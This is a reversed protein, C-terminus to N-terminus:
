TLSPGFAEFDENSPFAEASIEYRVPLDDAPQLLHGCREEVSEWAFVGRFHEGEPREPDAFAILDTRPLLAVVGRTWACYSRQKGTEPNGSVSFSAVFVDTDEKEHIADLLRKQETYIGGVEELRLRRYTEHSPHGAAVEWLTWGSPTRRLPLVSIAGPAQQEAAALALARAVAEEDDSGILILCNRNPVLAVAVGPLDLGDLIGDLLLRSSDYDDRWASVHVGPFPTWWRPAGIAALNALATELAEDFSVGWTELSSLPVSSMHEGRDEVLGMCLRGAFSRYLPSFSELGQLRVQLRMTEFMFSDRLAPRIHPAAEEWTAFPPLEWPMALFRRLVAGRQWPRAAAYMLHANHLNKLVEQGSSSKLRVLYIEPDYHIEGDSSRRLHRILIQAFEERTPAGFFRRYWRIVIPVNYM